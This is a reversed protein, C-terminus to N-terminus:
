KLFHTTCLVEVNAQLFFHDRHNLNFSENVLTYKLELNLSDLKTM